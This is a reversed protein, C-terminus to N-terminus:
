GFGVGTPFEFTFREVPREPRSCAALLGLLVTAVGLRVLGVPVRNDIVIPRMSHTERRRFRRIAETPESRARHAALSM